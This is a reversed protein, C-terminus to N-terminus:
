KLERKIVYILENIPVLKPLFLPIRLQWIKLYFDKTITSTLILIPVKTFLTLRRFEKLLEYSNESFVDLDTIILDPYQCHILNIGELYSNSAIPHFLNLRLSNIIKCSLMVDDTVILINKM